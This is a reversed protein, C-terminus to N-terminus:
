NTKINSLLNKMSVEVQTITKTVSADARRDYVYELTALEKEADMLQLIINKLEELYEGRKTAGKLNSM